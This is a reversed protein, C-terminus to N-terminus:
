RIPVKLIFIYMLIDNKSISVEFPYAFQFAGDKANDTAVNEPLAPMEVRLDPIPPVNPARHGSQAFSFFSMCISYTTM